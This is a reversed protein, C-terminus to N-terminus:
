TPDELKYTRGRALFQLCGLSYVGSLRGTRLTVLTPLPDFPSVLSSGQAGVCFVPLNRVTM